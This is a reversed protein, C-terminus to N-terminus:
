VILAQQSPAADSATVPPPLSPQSATHQDGRDPDSWDSGQERHKM